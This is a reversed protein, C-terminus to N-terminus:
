GNQMPIIPRPVVTSKGPILTFSYSSMHRLCEVCRTSPNPSSIARFWSTCTPMLLSRGLWPLNAKTKDPSPRLGSEKLIDRMTTVGIKIDLKWLEGVIRKAGWRLNHKAMLEILKRITEATAPRGLKKFVRGRRVDRLWRAYTGPKVIRMVEAIDGDVLAGLRILEAREVKTPVIRTSDIRFRLMRIQAELIQIHVNNRPKFWRGFLSVVVFILQNMGGFVGGM